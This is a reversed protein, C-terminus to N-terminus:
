RLHRPDHASGDLPHVLRNKARDLADWGLDKLIVLAFSIKENAAWIPSTSPTNAGLEARHSELAKWAALHTPVPM